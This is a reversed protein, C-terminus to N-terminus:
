SARKALLEVQKALEAAQKQLNNPKAQKQKKHHLLLLGTSNLSGPNSAQANNAIALKSQELKEKVIFTINFFIL